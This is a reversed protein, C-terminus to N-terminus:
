RPAPAATCGALLAALADLLEAPRFPKRLWASREPLTWGLEQQTSASLFAVPLTAQVLRAREAFELGTSGPMMADVVLLDFRERELLRLALHTDELVDAHASGLSVLTLQLLRRTDPDDDLALVRLGGLARGPTPAPRSNTHRPARESSAECAQALEEACIALADEPAGDSCRTELEGALEELTTHGYTGATGRLRHALRRLQDRAGETGLAVARAADRLESARRPLGAEMTRRLMALTEDLSQM